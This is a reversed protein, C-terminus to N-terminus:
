IPKSKTLYQPQIELEKYIIRAFKENIFNFRIAYTDILTTANINNGLICQIILLNEYFLDEPLFLLSIFLNKKEIKFFFQDKGVTKVLIKPSLQLKGM